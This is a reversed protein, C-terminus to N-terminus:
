NKEEEQDQHKELLKEIESKIVFDGIVISIFSSFIIKCIKDSYLKLRQSVVRNWVYSQYAHVYITKTNRDINNFAGKYDFQQKKLPILLSKELRDRKEM